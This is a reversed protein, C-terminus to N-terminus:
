GAEEGYQKTEPRELLLAYAPGAEAVPRHRVGREVVYLEGPELHVAARDELEIRFAGRWCLFLEDDAHHHWPFTGELRAMRVVADNVSAVDVPKWAESIEDAVVDLGIETARGTDIM